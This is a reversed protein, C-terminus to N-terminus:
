KRGGRPQRYGPFPGGSALDREPILVEAPIGTAEACDRCIRIMVTREGVPVKGPDTGFEQQSMVGFTGSAEEVSMAAVRAMVAIIWEADGQVPVVTDTDGRLCGMCSKYPAVKPLKVWKKRVKKRAMGM